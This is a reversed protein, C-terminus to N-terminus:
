HDQPQVQLNQFQNNPIPVPASPVPKFAKPVPGIITLIPVTPRPVQCPHKPVPKTPRQVPASSLVPKFAKPVPGAITLVPKAPRPAPGALKPVQKTPRPVPASPVLKVSKTGCIRILPTYTYDGLGTRHPYHSTDSTEARHTACM